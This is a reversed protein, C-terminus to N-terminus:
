RHCKKKCSADAAAPLAAIALLLPVQLYHLWDEIAKEGHLNVISPLDIHFFPRPLIGKGAALLPERLTQRGTRCGCRLM